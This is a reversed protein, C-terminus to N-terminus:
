SLTSGMKFIPLLLAVAVVGVVTGLVVIALPELLTSTRKVAIELDEEAADAIRALTEPLRGGREGAAIMAQTAPPIM